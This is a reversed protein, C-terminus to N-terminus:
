RIGQTKRPFIRTKHEKITLPTWSTQSFFCAFSCGQHIYPCICNIQQNALKQHLKATQTIWEYDSPNGLLNISARFIHSIEMKTEMKLSIWFDVLQESYEPYQLGRGFVQPGAHGAQWIVLVCEWCPVAVIQRSLHCSKQCFLRVKLFLLTERELLSQLLNECYHAM